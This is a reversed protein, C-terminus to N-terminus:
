KCENKYLHPSTGEGLTMYRESLQLVFLVFGSLIKKLREVYGTFGSRASTPVFKFLCLADKSNIEVASATLVVNICVSSQWTSVVCSVLRAQNFCM